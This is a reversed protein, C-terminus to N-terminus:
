LPLGTGTRSRTRANAIRVEFPEEVTLADERQQQEQDQWHTVRVQMVREPDLASRWFGPLTM